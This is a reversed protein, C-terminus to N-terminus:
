PVRGVALVNGEHMYGDPANALHAPSALDSARAWAARDEESLDCRAALDAFLGVCEVAMQRELPTFPAWREIPTLRQWVATLGAGELWRRLFPTRGTGIRVLDGMGDASRGAAELLRLLLLPPLPYFPIPGTSDKAAVLGGPRVVRRFEALAARLQDDSLYQSTNAFWVADFAADPYPLATVDGLRVAVPCPLALAAVRGEVTAANEPTLDLAALRGDPGVLEALWPLYGGSGCAADLVRWGPRIGVARVQAEYEPRALQFHTDLWDAESNAFGTSTSHSRQDDM